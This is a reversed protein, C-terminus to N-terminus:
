WRGGSMGRRELELRLREDVTRNIWDVLDLLQSTTVSLGSEGIDDSSQLVQSLISVPGPAMSDLAAPTRRVVMSGRSGSGSVTSSGSSSGSSPSRRIPSSSLGSVRRTVVNPTPEFGAEIMRAMDDASISSEPSLNAGAPIPASDSSRRSRRITLRRSPRDATGSRERSDPNADDSLSGVTGVGSETSRRV